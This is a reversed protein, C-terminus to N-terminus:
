FNAVSGTSDSFITCSTKGYQQDCTINKGLKTKGIESGTHEEVISNEKVDTLSEYIAEAAKGSVGIQLVQNGDKQYAYFSSEGAVFGGALSATAVLVLAACIALKM